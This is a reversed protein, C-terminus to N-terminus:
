SVQKIYLKNKISNKLKDVMEKPCVQVFSDIEEDYKEVLRKSLSSGTEKM